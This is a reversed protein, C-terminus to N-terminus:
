DVLFVTCSRAGHAGIVLAQEIDATKSPGSVFCGYGPRPIRVKEYAEHMDNVLRSAPVVLALHQSLVFLARLNRLGAETIWVAGNEAVALEGPLVALDVGALTHPISHAALDIGPLQPVISGITKAEISRALKRLEDPLAAETTRVCRGGVEQLSLAFQAALDAFVQGRRGALDPLPAPPPAADRLARLIEERSGM